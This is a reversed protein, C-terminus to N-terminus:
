FCATKSLISNRNSYRWLYLTIPLSNWVTSERAGSTYIEAFYERRPLRVPHHGARWLKCFVTLQIKDYMILKCQAMWIFNIYWNNDNFTYLVIGLLYIDSFHLNIQLHLHSMTFVGALWDPWNLWPKRFGGLKNSMNSNLPHITHGYM